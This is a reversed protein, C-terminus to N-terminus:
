RRLADAPELLSARLAPYLGALLGVAAGVAPAAIV